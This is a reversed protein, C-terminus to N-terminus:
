YHYTATLGITRPRVGREFYTHDNLGQNPPPYDPYLDRARFVLPHADTLNLVYLSVDFGRSRFGGRLNVNTTVPLGPLTPDYLANLPDQIPLIATQATTHLYDVRVYPRGGLWEGFHYEAAATFTWPAGLLADGASVVPSVAVQAGNVTGICAAGNFM